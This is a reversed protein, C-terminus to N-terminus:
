QEGNLINAFWDGYERQWEDFSQKLNELDIELDKSMPMKIIIPKTNEIVYGFPTKGEYKIDADIINRIADEATDAEGWQTSISFYRVKGDEFNLQACQRSLIKEYEFINILQPIRVEKEEYADFWCEDLFHNDQFYSVRYMGREKDYDVFWDDCESIRILSM